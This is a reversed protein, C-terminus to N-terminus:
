AGAGRAASRAVAPIDARLVGIDALQRDTLDGLEHLTTRYRRWYGIRAQLRALLGHLTDSARGAQPYDRGTLANIDKATVTHAAMIVGEVRMRDRRTVQIPVARGANARLYAGPSRKYFVIKQM